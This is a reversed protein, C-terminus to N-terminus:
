LKDIEKKSLGSIRALEKKDFGKAVLKRVLKLEGEEIGLQRGEDIGLQRGEEIGLQRVQEEQEKILSKRYLDEIWYYDDDEVFKKCAEAMEMVIKDGGKAKEMADEISNSNLFEFLKQSKKSYEKYDKKNSVYIENFEFIHKKNLKGSFEKNLKEFLEKKMKKGIMSFNEFNKKLGKILNFQYLMKVKTFDDGLKFQGLYQKALYAFSKLISKITYSTYPELNVLIDEGNLDKILIRIDLELGKEKYFDKELVLSNIIEVKGRLSGTDLDFLCELLYETFRINKSYGYLFKFLGDNIPKPNDNEM